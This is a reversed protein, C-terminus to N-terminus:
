STTVPGASYSPFPKILYHVLYGVSLLYSGRIIFQLVYLKLRATRLTFVSVAPEWSCCSPVMGFLFRHHHHLHHHHHGRDQFFGPFVVIFGM